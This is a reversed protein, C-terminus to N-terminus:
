TLALVNLSLHARVGVAPVSSTYTDYLTNFSWSTGFHGALDWGPSPASPLHSVRCHGSGRRGACAAGAPCHYRGRDQGGQGGSCRVGTPLSADSVILQM